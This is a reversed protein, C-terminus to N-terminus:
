WKLAVDRKRGERSVKLAVSRGEEARLLAKQLIAPTLVAMGDASMIVDGSRLGAAAAPTGEGVRVVLVGERAGVVEGLGEDVAVVQAGALAAPGGLGFSFLLPQPPTPADGSRSTVRMRGARPTPAAMPAMSALAEQGEVGNVVIYSFGPGNSTLAQLSGSGPVRGVVVPLVMARGGRKLGVRLTDQPVLLRDLAIEGAARLDAGNYAVITDGSELGARAAPSGPEISVVVPYDCYRVVRGEGTLRTESLESAQVGIWGRTNLLRVRGGGAVAGAAPAAAVVGVTTAARQADTVRQLEVIARARATDVMASRTLERRVLAGCASTPTAEQAGATAAAVFATAGLARVIVLITRHMSM